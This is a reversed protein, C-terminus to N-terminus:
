EGGRSLVEVGIGDLAEHAHIAREVRADGANAVRYQAFHKAREVFAGRSDPEQVYPGVLVEGGRLCFVFGDEPGDPVAVLFARGAGHSIM